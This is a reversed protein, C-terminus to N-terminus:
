ESPLSPQHGAFLSSGYSLFGDEWQPEGYSPKDICALRKGQERVQLCSTSGCNRIKRIVAMPATFVDRKSGAAGWHRTYLGPHLLCKIFIQQLFSHISTLNEKENLPGGGAKALTSFWKLWEVYINSLNRIRQDSKSNIRSFYIILSIILPKRWLIYRCSCSFFLLFVSILTGFQLKNVYM